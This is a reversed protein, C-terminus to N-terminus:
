SNNRRRGARYAMAILILFVFLGGIMAPIGWSFVRRWEYFVSNIREPVTSFTPDSADLWAVIGSPAVLAIDGRDLTYPVFEDGGFPQNAASFQLGTWYLGQYPGSRMVEVSSLDRLGAIDLLPAEEGEILLRQGDIVQVKPKASAVPVGMAIFTSEPTYAQNAAILEFGARHPSLGSAAALRIVRQLHHPANDLWAEPVVLQAKNALFPMIGVFSPDAYAEQTAIYSTPLVNFPFGVQAETCGNASPLRQLSIRISNTQGVAHLPIRASIHEKGGDARLRAATLLIGNWTVSLVPPTDSTDPAVAVDLLLRHPVRGNFEISRYSFDTQWTAHNVVDFSQTMAGLRRLRIAQASNLPRTQANEVAVRETTLLGTWLPSFLAAADRSANPRVAIVRSPATGVLFINDAQDAHGLDFNAAKVAQAFWHKEAPSDLMRELADLASMIQTAISDDFVVVNGLVAETRLLLLAGIQAQSTVQMSPLRTNALSAMVPHDLLSEPFALDKLAITDGVALMAKPRVNKGGLQFATGIRWAADFSQAAITGLALSLISQAPALHWASAIDLPEAASVSYSIGTSPSIVLSNASPPAIECAQLVKNSIWKVGLRLFNAPSRQQPLPLDLDIDGGKGAYTRSYVPEDDVLLQLTGGLDDAGLYHAHFHIRANQVPASRPLAMYFERSQGPQDLVVPRSIGTSNLTQQLVVQREARELLSVNPESQAVAPSPLLGFAAFVLPAWVLRGPLLRLPISFFM